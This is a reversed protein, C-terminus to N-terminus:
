SYVAKYASNERAQRCAEASNYCYFRRLLVSREKALARVSDLVSDDNTVRLDFCCLFAHAAGTEERYTVAQDLGKVLASINTAESCTAGGAGFSRLVKLELIIGEGIENAKPLIAIDARGTPLKLEYIIMCRSSYLLRIPILIYEQITKETADVPVHRDSRAWIKVGFNPVRLSTEHFEALFQDIDSITPGSLAEVLSYALFVEEQDVGAPYLMATRNDLNFVVAPVESLGNKSLYTALDNATNGVDTSRMVETLDTGSLHVRGIIEHSYDLSFLRVREYGLEAGLQRPYDALVFVCHGSAAENHQRNRKCWDRLYILVPLLSRIQGSADGIPLSALGEQLLGKIREHDGESLSISNPPERSM